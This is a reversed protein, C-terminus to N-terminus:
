RESPTLVESATSNAWTGKLIRDAQVTYIIPYQGGWDVTLTSGQLRGTGQYCKALEWKICYLDNIKSIEATGSYKSGDANTGAVHYEM